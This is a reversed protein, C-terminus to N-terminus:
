RRPTPVLVVEKNEPRLSLTACPWQATFGDGTLGEGGRITWDTLGARDLERRVISFAAPAEVCPSEVFPGAVADRFALVRANLDASPQPAAGPVTTPAPPVIPLNLLTCVDQGPTTPFVGAVGAGLLCEALDPVERTPGFAGRRWLEACAAVPGAHDVSAVETNAELSASEYCAVKEPKSVEGRLFAYAAAGGLLSSAVLVPVLRRARRRQGGRRLPDGTVSTIRRFLVPDPPSLTTDTLPVPNGARLRNLPDRLDNM